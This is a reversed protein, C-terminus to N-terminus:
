YSEEECDEEEEGDVDNADLFLDADVLAQDAEGLVDVAEAPVDFYDDDDDEVDDLDEGNEDYCPNEETLDDETPVVPQPCEPPCYGNDSCGSCDPDEDTYAPADESEEDVLGQDDAEQEVEPDRILFDDDPSNGAVIDLLEDFTNVEEGAAEEECDDNFDEEGEFPIIYDGGDQEAPKMENEDVVCDADFAALDYENEFEAHPVPVAAAFGVLSTLAVMLKM